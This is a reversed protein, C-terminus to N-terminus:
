LTQKSKIKSSFTCHHHKTLIENIRYLILQPCVELGNENVSLVKEEMKKKKSQKGPRSKSNSEVRLSDQYKLPQIKKFKM